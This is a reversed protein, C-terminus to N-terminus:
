EGVYHLQNVITELVENGDEGMYTGSVRIYTGNVTDAWYYIITSYEENEVYMGEFGNVTIEEIVSAGETNLGYTMNDAASLIYIGIISGDEYYYIRILQRDEGAVDEKMEVCGDPVAPESYHYIVKPDIEANETNGMSMEGARDSSGSMFLPFVQERLEPSVALATAGVVMLAVLAAVAIGIVRRAVGGTKRKKGSITDKGRQYAGEPVGGEGHDILRENLMLYRAGKVQMTEKMLNLLFEDEWLVHDSM